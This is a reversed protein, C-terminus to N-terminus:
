RLCLQILGKPINRFGQTAVMAIIMQTGNYGAHVLFSAGVSRTAARVIGCVVGVIFIVLMAGWAYGYQQLHMLAFPLATFFIAWAVGWRRAVVPYLFGRFFLEEVLPGLTVAITALLYADRPRAFLKEFPTDKPMPLVSELLTLGMLMLAGLGFLKWASQPWNWQIARWFGTHYKGEVLLVLYIAVSIDILCQAILLVMPLQALDNLSTHPYFFFHAAFLITLQSLFITVLSVGLILLVDWGSWIPNEVPPPAQSVPAISEAPFSDPAGPAQPELSVPPQSEFQPNDSFPL